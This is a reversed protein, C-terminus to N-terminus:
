SLMDPSYFVHNAIQVHPKKNKSWFPKVGTTHYFLAGGTPDKSRGSIIDKAIKQAQVWAKYDPSSTNLNMINMMAKRNSDNENWASFQKDKKVVGEITNGGFKRKDAEVRNMIVHGVARMGKEGHSRAEGWMTLALLRTDHDQIAEDADMEVSSSSSYAVPEPDNLKDKVMQSTFAASSIALAGLAKKIKSMDEDLMDDYSPCIEELLM